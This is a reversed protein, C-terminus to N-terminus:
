KISPYYVRLAELTTKSDYHSIFIGGNELWRSRYKPIDDVLIDGPKSHDRKNRSLCTIIELDPFHEAAWEKKQIVSIEGSTGTLIIPKLHRVAEVLEVADPMLALSRYFDGKRHIARWFASSGNKKEFEKSSMGFLKFASADFDALVGDCDLFLQPM